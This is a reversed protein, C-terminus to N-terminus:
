IQKGFLYNSSSNKWLDKSLIETSKNFDSTNDKLFLDLQLAQFKEILVTM